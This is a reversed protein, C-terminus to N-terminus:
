KLLAMKLYPMTSDPVLKDVEEWAGEEMLRRVTSASIPNGACEKRTIEVFEIGYGGLTKKMEENYQRTVKDLPEEGAFRVSIRLYPAVYRAFIRIDMATDVIEEKLREKQFYSPMTYYSLIFKGSPFVRVNEFEATGAKVMNIRDEYLFASRDEQVVFLYLYDVQSAAQEILYQHGLTFPNCNMIISGIRANEPIDFNQEAIEKLYEELEARAEDSLLEGEQVCYEEGNNQCSLIAPYVTQEFIEKALAINGYKTSHIPIDYFWPNEQPRHNYLSTLNVDTNRDITGIWVVIDKNTLPIAKLLNDLDVYHGIACAEVCYSSDVDGILQQLRYPLTDEWLSGLGAVICPGIMYVTNKGARIRSTLAGGRRNQNFHQVEEKLRRSKYEQPTMGVLKMWEKRTIGNLDYTNATSLPFVYHHRYYEEVTKDELVDFNPLGCFYVQVNGMLKKKFGFSKERMCENIAAEISFFGSGVIAPDADDLADARGNMGEAWINWVAYDSYKEEETNSTGKTILSWKDGIVQVPTNHKLALQYLYFAWENCGYIRIQQTHPVIKNLWYFYIENYKDMSKLASDVGTFFAPSKLDNYAFCFPENNADCVLMWESRANDEFIKNAYQFIHQGATIYRKELCSDVSDGESNLVLHYSTFGKRTGDTDHVLIIDNKHGKLCFYSLLWGRSVEDLHVRYVEKDLLRIM